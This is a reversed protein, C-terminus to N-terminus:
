FGEVPARLNERNNSSLRKFKELMSAIRMKKPAEESIDTVMYGMKRLKSILEAKDVTEMGGKVSKGAPDRAKYSYTPM